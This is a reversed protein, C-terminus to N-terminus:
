TLAFSLGRRNLKELERGIAVAVERENGVVGHVTVNIQPGGMLRNNGSGTLPIVAEPGSEAIRALHPRTFIGGAAHAGVPGMAGAPGPPGDGTGISGINGLAWGAILNFKDIAWNLKGIFWGLMNSFTTEIWSISSSFVRKIGEWMRGFFGSIAGWHKIVLGPLGLFLTWHDKIWDIADFFIRKIDGWLRGFFASVAGWHKVVLIAIAILAAIATVVLGIPNATLAANFLWQAAAALKAYAFYLKLGVNVALVATALGAIIGIAIKAVTSHKTLWGVGDAVTSAVATLVPLLGAGLAEELNEVAVRYRDQAGAATKGYAEASGGFKKQILALAEQRSANSDIAIGLRKLGSYSGNYVKALVSTAASLKMGKGRALDAALANLQLAKNVDGTTRILNSFSEALEEDDLGSLESTKAIAADIQDAYDAYALGANKMAQELSAQVRQADVAADVSKKMGITLVGLAAAAPLAARQIGHKFSAATSRAMAESEGQAQKLDKKLPNLDAVLELTAKGLSESAM